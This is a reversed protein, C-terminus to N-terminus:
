VIRESPHNRSGWPSAMKLCASIGSRRVSEGVVGSDWWGSSAHISPLARNRVRFRQVTMALALTQEMLSFRDGVCMRPGGGFPYYAFDHRGRSCDPAFREPDFKEPEEWYLPSRHTVWQSTLVTSGSRIRFGCVLDDAIATRSIAPAPPYLRLTEDILM